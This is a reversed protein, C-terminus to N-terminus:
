AKKIDIIVIESRSGFRMPPGWTGAGSSVYLNTAGRKFWGYLHRFRLRVILSFPFVQGAHTHGCLMLDIDSADKLGDPRHYMLINYGKKKLKPLHKAVQQKDESDDIGLITMGKYHKSANRLPVIKTPKLLRMVENKNIYHEVYHEHNGWSMYIPIDLMNFPELIDDPLKGPGDVIDGPLLLVDAKRQKVKELIRRLYNDGHVPGIHLDTLVAIRANVSGELEKYRVVPVQGILVAFVSLAIGTGLVVMGVLEERFYHVLVEGVLVLFFTITAFGMWTVSVRYLMNTWLQTFRQELRFAIPYLLIACATFAVYSAGLPLELWSLVRGVVYFNMGGYLLLFASLVTALFRKM